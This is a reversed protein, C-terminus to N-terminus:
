LECSPCCITAEVQWTDRMRQDEVARAKVIGAKGQSTFAAKMATM